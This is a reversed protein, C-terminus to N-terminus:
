PTPLYCCTSLRANHTQNTRKSMQKNQEKMHKYREETVWKHSVKRLHKDIFVYAFLSPSADIHTYFPKPSLISMVYTMSAVKVDSNAVVAIRYATSM